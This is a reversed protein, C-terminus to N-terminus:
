QRLETKKELDNEFASNGVVIVDALQLWSALSRLETALATATPQHGNDGEYFARQVLLRSTKRDAKLDVRATIRDGERFPLVYYGWRRKVAPVYIEIRYELGFLRQTRPRFWLIPDFPSLLSAGPIQRPIRVRDSLYAAVDWGEVVVPRLTGEDVLEALRPAADRPSMRYYDALDHLTAIGLSDAARHLMARQADRKSMRIALTDADILREPLDYVRQFNPRRSRVVLKGRGFHHELAWRPLSRQWDGPKGAPTAVRAFDGSTVAGSERVKRLISRLYAQRDPVSRLSSSQWQQFANRRHALLPWDDRSVISAEHAWQEDYDGSRYLFSEFAARDYAGLRSWIMLFHAPLLVNVYDLQLVKIAGMARRFHRVDNTSAPRPRDFGQAALAIRRAESASIRVRHAM